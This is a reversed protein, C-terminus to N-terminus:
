VKVRIGGFAHHKTLHISPVLCTTRHYQPSSGKELLHHSKKGNTDHLTDLQRSPLSAVNSQRRRCYSSITSLIFPEHHLIPDVGRYAHVMTSRVNCSFSPLIIISCLYPLQLLIIPLILYLYLMNVM